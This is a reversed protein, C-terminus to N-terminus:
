ALAVLCLRCRTQFGPQCSHLFHNLLHALMHLLRQHERQGVGGALCLDCGLIGVIVALAFADKSSTTFVKVRSGTM